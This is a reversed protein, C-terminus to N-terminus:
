MKGKPVTMNLGKLVAHSRDYTKVADRISVTVDERDDRDEMDVTSTATSAITQTKTM